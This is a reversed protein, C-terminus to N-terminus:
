RDAAMVKRKLVNYLSVYDLTENLRM